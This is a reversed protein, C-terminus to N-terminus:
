FIVQSTMIQFHSNRLYYSYYLHRNTLSIDCYTILNVQIFKTHGTRLDLFILCMFLPTQRFSEGQNVFFQAVDTGWTRSVEHLLTQGFRDSTNVSAGAHLLSQIHELDLSDDVDPSSSLKAFYLLLAQNPDEPKKVGDPRNLDNLNNLHASGEEGNESPEKAGGEGENEERVECALELIAEYPVSSEKRTPANAEGASANIEQIMKECNAVNSNRRKMCANPSHPRSRSENESILSLTNRDQHISANPSTFLHRFEVTPFQLPLGSALGNQVTQPEQLNNEEEEKKDELTDEDELPAVKKRSVM